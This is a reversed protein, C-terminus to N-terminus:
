QPTSIGYVKLIEVVKESLTPATKNGSFLFEIDGVWAIPNSAM